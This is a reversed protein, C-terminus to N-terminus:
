RDDYKVGLAAACKIIVDDVFEKSPGILEINENKKLEMHGGLETSEFLKGSKKHIKNYEMMWEMMQRANQEERPSMDLGELHKM